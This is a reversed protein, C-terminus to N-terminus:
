ITPTTKERFYQLVPTAICLSSYTGSLIGILLVLAFDALTVGGFLYLFTVVGLTTVSTNVTRLFTQSISLNIITGFPYKKLDKQRMNERIRDFIIITDNISYGLITLLAAVFATNIEINFVASLSLTVFADHMLAVLASVGYAWEFRWSIYLLLLISVSIIIWFASRRLEHGITPGIYDVELVTFDSLHKELVRQVSLVQKPTIATTKLIMEGAPTMQIQSGSLNINALATRAVQIWGEEPTKVTDMSEIGLLFTSGGVFDIGMNLAPKMQISRSTVVSIGIAIVLFSILFWLNKKEVIKFIKKPLETTM